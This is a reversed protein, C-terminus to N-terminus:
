LRLFSRCDQCITGTMDSMVFHSIGVRCALQAVVALPVNSYEDCFLCLLNIAEEGGLRSIIILALRRKRFVFFEAELFVDLADTHQGRLSLFHGPDRIVKQGDEHLIFIIFVNAGFLDYVVNGQTSWNSHQEIVHLNVGKNM